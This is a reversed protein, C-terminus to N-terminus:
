KQSPKLKEPHFLVLNNPNSLLIFFFIPPIDDSLIWPSINAKDELTNIPDLKIILFFPRIFAPAVPILAPKKM